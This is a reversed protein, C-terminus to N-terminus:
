TAASRTIAVGLSSSKPRLKVRPSLNGALGPGCKKARQQGSLVSRAAQEFVSFVKEAAASALQLDDADTLSDNLLLLLNRWAGRMAKGALFSAPLNPSVSRALLTAGLRSGELVYVGGLVEPASAFSPVELAHPVAIGLLAMDSLLSDSRRRRHWDAILLGAGARHLADELPLYALAQASLLLAYGAEHSVVFQSFLSDVRQHYPATAVRLAQVPAVTTSPPKVM